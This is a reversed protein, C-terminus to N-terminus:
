VFDLQKQYVLKGMRQDLDSLLIIDIATITFHQSPGKCVYLGYLHHRYTEYWDYHVRTGAIFHQDLSIM